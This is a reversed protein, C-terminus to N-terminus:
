TSVRRGGRRSTDLPSRRPSCSPRRRGSCPRTAHRSAMSSPPSMRTAGAAALLGRAIGAMALLGAKRVVQRRVMAPDAGLAIRNGIDRMRRGVEYSTVGYPGVCVLALALVGFWASLIALVRERTLAAGIQEEMTRVYNVVVNREIAGVETRIAAIFAAPPETSRVAVSISSPIEYEQTMPTYVIRSPADRLGFQVTDRVVGAITMPDRPDEIGFRLARLRELLEDCLRPLREAPVPTGEVDLSFTLVHNRDFGVDVTELNRLTRVLLGAGALFVM